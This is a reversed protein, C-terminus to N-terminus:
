PEEDLAFETWRTFPISDAATGTTPGDVRLAADLRGADAAEVFETVTEPGDAAAFAWYHAGVQEAARRRARAAAVFATRAGPAVTLTRM